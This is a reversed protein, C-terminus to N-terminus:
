KRGSKKKFQSNQNNNGTNKKAFGPASKGQAEAIEQAERMKKQLWGEKKPSKKMDELTLKKRSYKNIWTQQGISLLNFTFYYLNLGAPFSAFMFTFMIPMMYVMAKQKPDTVTMKQQFFMTIGMLLALGSLHELGLISFPFTVIHDPLSLDKIWWIFDAQRFDIYNKMVAWLAYLIPMQLLLPLCGGAPNVGYKSYVKMIEKQQATQDDKLRERVDAIEPAILQMKQVSRMQQISFPYLLFKMLFAFILISIGYNPVLSHIMKFFPLMIFEGIPRVILRWGFNVMAQIGYEHCKDYDLPGLYVRFNTTQVGGDYPTKLNLNYTKVQGKNEVQTHKGNASATVKGARFPQPIVAAAFYKTHVAAYDLVGINNIPTQSNDKCDLEAIEDNSLIIAKADTSEDVSNLEQYRLGDKWELSYHDLRLYKDMNQMTVGADIHYKGNYFTINRVIASNSDVQLVAKLTLSDSGKLTFNKQGKTDFTFSLNRSDILDKSDRSSLTLFLEGQNNNILQTPTKDWKKFNKLTWKRISGGNSSIVATYLDTEVTIFDEGKNAFKAFASGYKSSLWSSDAVAASSNAFDKPSHKIQASSNQKNNQAPPAPARHSSNWFMWASIVITILVFGLISRKDM